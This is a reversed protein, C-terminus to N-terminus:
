KIGRHWHLGRTEIVIVHDEDLVTLNYTKLHEHQFIALQAKAKDLAQEESEGHAIIVSNNNGSNWIYTKAM